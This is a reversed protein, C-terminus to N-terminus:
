GSKRVLFMVQLVASHGRVEPRPRIYTAQAVVPRARLLSLRPATESSNRQQPVAAFCCCSFVLKETLIAGSPGLISSSPHGLRGFHLRFPAQAGLITDLLSWFPGLLSGFRALPGGFHGEASLLSKPLGFPHKPLAKSLMKPEFISLFGSNEPFFAMGFDNFFRHRFLISFSLFFSTKEQMKSNMKTENQISKSIRKCVKEADTKAHNKPAMKERIKLIKSWFPAWFSGLFCEKQSGFDISKRLAGNKPDSPREPERKSANQDM